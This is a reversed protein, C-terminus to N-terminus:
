FLGALFPLYETLRASFDELGGHSVISSWGGGTFLAVAIVAVGVVLLIGCLICVIRFAKKM